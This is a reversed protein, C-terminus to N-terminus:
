ITLFVVATATPKPSYGGISLEHMGIRFRPFRNRWNEALGLDVLRDITPM